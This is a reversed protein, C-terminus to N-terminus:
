PRAPFPPLRDWNFQPILSDRTGTHNQPSLTGGWWTEPDPGWGVRLYGHNTEVGVLVSEVAADVQVGPGHVQADEGVIALHHEVAVERTVEGGQELGDCGVVVANDDALAHEAPIPEGVAAGLVVDGDDVM